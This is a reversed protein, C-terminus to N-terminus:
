TNEQIKDNFHEQAKESFRFYPAPHSPVEFKEGTRPNRARRKKRWVPKFEGFGRLEIRSGEAMAIILEDLFADVIPKLAQVSAKNLKEEKILKHKFKKAM